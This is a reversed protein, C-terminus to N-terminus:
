KSLDALAKQADKLDPSKAVLAELIRRADATEGLARHAEAMGLQLEPAPMHPAALQMIALGQRRAKADGALQAQYYGLMGILDPRYRSKNAALEQQATLKDGKLLQEILRMSAEEMFVERAVPTKGLLRVMAEASQATSFPNQGTVLRGDVVVKPMMLAAEEWHAGHKRALSEILFPFEKVWKKGFAAEEEDTFGTLRRGKIWSKGDSGTLNVFVAPGHCVAGLVGGAADHALLLKQLATDKPLDFMAGKGGLVYIAVHEGVRIDATRKTVNLKALADADRSLAIYHDRKPNFRDAEVAGGAPSAVDIAFGNAAFTLYALAYEDMEFGPRTKGTDRGESSVVLLVRKEAAEAHGIAVIAVWMFIFMCLLARM